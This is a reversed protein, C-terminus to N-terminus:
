VRTFKLEHPLVIAAFRCTYSETILPTFRHRVYFTNSLRLKDFHYKYQPIMAKSTDYQLRTDRLLLPIVQYM